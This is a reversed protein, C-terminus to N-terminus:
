ATAEGTPSWDPFQGDGNPRPTAARPPPLASGTAGGGGGGDGCRRGRSGCLRALRAGAGGGALRAARRREVGPKLANCAAVLALMLPVEVLVGVTTALAAGSAPGYVAAATAVALEFFNSTAILSAPALFAHEMACVGGGIAYVFAWVGVTQLALPVAVMAIHGPRSAIAQGQFLFVLVLTALLGAGVAPALRARLTALAAPGRWRLVAWRVACAALLPAVLFLAVSLAVTAYPPPLSAAGILAGALPVYLALLLANNVAVQVVTYGPHGGVLLSWVFVMATCPACGLLVCGAIFQTALDPTLWRAFVVRFFLVAVGFMLFPQVGYNTASTLLIPGPTAAAARLAAWDVALLMPFIMLWVLVSVLINVGGVQVSALATALRPVKAGLAAGAVMCALVWLPLFREFM